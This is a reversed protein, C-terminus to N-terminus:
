VLGVSLDSFRGLVPIGLPGRMVVHLPVTLYRVQITIQLLVFRLFVNELEWHYECTVFEWVQLVIEGQGLDRVPSSQEFIPIDHFIGRKVDASISVCGKV